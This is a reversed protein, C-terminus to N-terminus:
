LSKSAEIYVTAFQNINAHSEPDGVFVRVPLDGTQALGAPIRVNVQIIGAALGPAAGAYEVVAPLGGIEVTVPLLPQPLGPGNNITGDEQLPSTLGAGTTWMVIVSGPTAPNGPGILVSNADLFAGPGHGSVDLTFPAEDSIARKTRSTM